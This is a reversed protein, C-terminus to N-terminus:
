TPGLGRTEEIHLPPVDFTESFDANLKRRTRCGITSAVVQPCTKATTVGSVMTVPTAHLLHTTTICIADTVSTLHAACCSAQMWNPWMLGIRPTATQHLRKSQLTSHTQRNRPGQPQCPPFSAQACLSGLSTTFTPMRNDCKVMIIATAALPPPFSAHVM